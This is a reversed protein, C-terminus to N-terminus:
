MQFNVGVFSVRKKKGNLAFDVKNSIMAFLLFFIFFITMKRDSCSHM